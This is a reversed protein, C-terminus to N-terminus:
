TLEKQYHAEVFKYGRTAYFYRIRGAIDDGPAIMRIRTCNRQKAAAEGADLLKPGVRLANRHKPLVWWGLEAAEVRGDFIGQVVIMLMGGLLKGRYDAVLVVGMEGAILNAIM